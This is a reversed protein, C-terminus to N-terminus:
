LFQELEEKPYLRKYRRIVLIIGLLVFVIGGIFMIWVRQFDVYEIILPTGMAKFEEETYGFELSYEHYYGLLEEDDMEIVQGECYVRTIPESGGELYDFTENTLKDMAEVLKQNTKLCINGEATPIVYYNGSAKSTSRTGDKYETYTSESAFPAFSYLVDGAVHSGKQVQKGDLLDQFNVAPYFYTVFHDFNSVISIIGIILIALSVRNLASFIKKM